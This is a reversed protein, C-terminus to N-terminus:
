RMLALSHKLGAILNEIDEASNYLGLSARISTKCGLLKHLPQACHHGARVAINQDDLITAVDHAHVHGVNISVLIADVQLPVLPKIEDITKLGDYLHQSLLQYYATIEPWTINEIFDIAAGLGVIAAVNRSGVEFKQAGTIYSTHEFTVKNVIGGGLNYPEAGEMLDTKAWLVGCGTPGYMKHASFVYFDCELQKVNVPMHGVAQAGDVLVLAAKAHALATIAKIDNVTGLVNSVHNIAVLVTNEDILAELLALDIVGLDNLPAIRLQAGIDRCIKQWPLLNAHHEASSIVINHVPALKPRVLSHALINIAETTGSTFTIESGCSAGIFRAIKDRNDEVLQTANASLQYLGKHSNAHSFCQYHYMSKAVVEPTLTTAASDLYTLTPQQEFVPFEVKWPSSIRM